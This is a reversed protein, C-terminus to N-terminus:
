IEYDIQLRYDLKEDLFYGHPIYYGSADVGQFGTNPKSWTHSVKLSIRMADVPNLGFAFWMNTLGFDTDFIKFDSYDIYWLFGQAYLAGATLQLKVPSDTQFNHHFSFGLSEDPFGADGVNM